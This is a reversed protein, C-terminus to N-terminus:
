LNPPPNCPFDCICAGGEYRYDCHAEAHRGYSSCKIGCRSCDGLMAQCGMCDEALAFMILFIIPFVVSFKAKAM